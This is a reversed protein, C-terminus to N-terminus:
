FAASLGSRLLAARVKDCVTRNWREAVRNWEPSHPPGPDHQIGRGELFLKFEASLYEGSNDTRLKVMSNGTCRETKALFQKFCTFVDSKRKIPYMFAFKSADDIFSVFMSYGERSKDSCGWVDSHVLELVTKARHKVRSNFRRKISKARFCVECKRPNEGGGKVALGKQKLLYALSRSNLHDLWDHWEYLTLEPVHCASSTLHHVTKPEDLLYLGGQEKAVAVATGDEDRIVAREADHTITFGRKCIQTTSMLPRNLTPLHIIPLDELNKIGFDKEFTKDSKIISKDALRVNTVAGERVVKSHVDVHPLMSSTCASDLAWKSWSGEVNNVEALNSEDDSEFVVYNVNDIVSSAAASHDKTQKSGLNRLKKLEDLDRQLTNCSAMFHGPRKCHNCVQDTASAENVSGQTAPFTEVKKKGRRPRSKKTSASSVEVIEDSSSQKMIENQLTRIVVELSCSDRQELPAVVASWDAPPSNLMATVFLEDTNLPADKTILSKLRMLCNLQSDIHKSINDDEPRGRILHNLWYMRTGLTSVSHAAMLANWMGEPNDEYDVILAFNSKGAYRNIIDCMRMEDDKRVSGPAAAFGVPDILYM